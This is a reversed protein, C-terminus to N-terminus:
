TQATSLRAAIARDRRLVMVGTVIVATHVVLWVGIVNWHDGRAFAYWTDALIGRTLEVIVVALVLSNASERARSALLLAIGIGGVEMGFFMWTDVLFRAVLDGADARDLAGPPAMTKIPAHVFVMMIFQLVYFAGVIQLWRKTARM